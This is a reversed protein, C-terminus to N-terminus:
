SQQVCLRFQGRAIAQEDVRDAVRGAELVVGAMGPAALIQVAFEPGGGGLRFDAIQFRFDPRVSEVADDRQVSIVSAVPKVREHAARDQRLIEDLRRQANLALPHAPIVVGRHLISRFDSNDM